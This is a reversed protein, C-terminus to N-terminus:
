PRIRELFFIAYFNMHTLYIIVLYLTVQTRSKLQLHLKFENLDIQISTRSNQVMKTGGAGTTLRSKKELALSLGFIIERHVGHFM